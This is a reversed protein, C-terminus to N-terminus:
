IRVVYKTRCIGRFRCSDCGEKPSPTTYRGERIYDRMIVISDRLIGKFGEAEEESFWSKDGGFFFQYKGEELFYYAAKDVRINPVAEMLVLYFPIQYSGSGGPETVVAGKVLGWSSRKYDVLVAKEEKESVRDIKGTLSVGEIFDKMNLTYEAEMLRYGPFTEAEVSLFLNLAEETRRRFAEMVPSIFLPDRGREWEMLYAATEESAYKRYNEIEAPLFGRNGIREALRKLIGHEATGAIRPDYSIFQYSSEELKLVRSLLYSFPCGFFEQLKSASVRLVGERGYQKEACIRSLEAPLSERTYDSAKRSFLTDRARFFGERQPASIRWPEPSEGAWVNREARPPSPMYDPDGEKDGRNWSVISGVSVLYGPATQAGTFSEGAYSLFGERGGQAYLSIFAPRLDNDVIGLVAKQDERLLPMGATKASTNEQSANLIFHYDPFIGASVRYPFVKVAGEEAKPVYVKDELFSIFLRLPDELNIGKLAEASDAIESLLSLSFQLAREDETEWASPNLYKSIFGHLERKLVSFDKAGTLGALGRSFDRWVEAEQGAGLRRLTEVWSREGPIDKPCFGEIGKYLINKLVERERWPCSQDLFLVKLSNLSNNSDKAGLLRRFFKGPAYEALAKGSRFSLALDFQEAAERVAPEAKDLGCLTIVIRDPHIGKDLLKRIRALVSNIEDYVTPFRLIRYDEAKGASLTKIFPSVELMPAYQAFDEIIEPFVIVKKALGGRAKFALSSSAGFNREATKVNKTVSLLLELPEFLSNEKLFGRYRERILKFDALLFADLREASPSDLFVGLRPLLSVLERSFIGSSSAYEPPIVSSFLPRGTGNERLLNDAFLTRSLKNAPRGEPVDFFLSEKFGDWSLLREEPLAKLDSCLLGQRRWFAATIESPFVITDEGKEILNLIETWPATNMARVKICYEATLFM